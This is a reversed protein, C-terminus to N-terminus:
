PYTPSRNTEDGFRDKVGEVVQATTSKLVEWTKRATRKLAKASARGKTRRKSTGKRATKKRASSRKASTRKTSRKRSRRKKAAM